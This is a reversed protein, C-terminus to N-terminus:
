SNSYKVHFCSDIAEGPFGSPRAMSARSKRMAVTPQLQLVSVEKSLIYREPKGCDGGSGMVEGM